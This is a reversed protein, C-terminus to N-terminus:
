STAESEELFYGAAFFTGRSKALLQGAEDLIEAEAVLTHNGNHIVRGIAQIRTNVTASRIYNINMDITLVKKGTTACAVGMATDALSALAGGHAVGFLNTHERVIPMSLCVQAESLEDISMQLFTVYPNADYLNQLHARLKAILLSM